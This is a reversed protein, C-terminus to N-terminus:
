QRGLGPLAGPAMHLAPVARSRGQEILGVGPERSQVSRSLLLRSFRGLGHWM